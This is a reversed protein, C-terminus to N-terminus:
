PCPKCPYCQWSQRRARSLLAAHESSLGLSATQTARSYPARQWCILHDQALKQAILHHFAGWTQQAPSCSSGAHRSLRWRFDSDACLASTFSAMLNAAFCIFLCGLDAAFGGERILMSRPMIPPVLRPLM